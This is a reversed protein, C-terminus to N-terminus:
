IVIPKTGTLAAKVFGRPPCLTTDLAVQGNITINLGENILQGLLYGRVFGTNAFISIDVGTGAATFVPRDAFFISQVTSGTTPYSGNFMLDEGRFKHQLTIHFSYSGATTVAAAMEGPLVTKGWDTSDKHLTQVATRQANAGASAFKQAFTAVAKRQAPLNAGIHEQTRLLNDVEAGFDASGVNADLLSGFGGDGRPFLLDTGFEQAGFGSAGRSFLVSDYDGSVAPRAGSSRHLSDTDIVLEGSRPDRLVRAVGLEHLNDNEDRGM